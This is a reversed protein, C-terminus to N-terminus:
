ADGALLVTDCGPEATVALPDDPTTSGFWQRIVLQVVKGPPIAVSGVALAFLAVASWAMLMSLTVAAIRGRSLLKM